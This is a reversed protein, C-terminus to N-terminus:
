MARVIGRKRKPLSVSENVYAEQGLHGSARAKRELRKRSLESILLFVHLSITPPFEWFCGSNEM